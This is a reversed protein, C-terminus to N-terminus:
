LVPKITVGRGFFNSVRQTEIEQLKVLIHYSDDIYLMDITATLYLYPFRAWAFTATLDTSSTKM